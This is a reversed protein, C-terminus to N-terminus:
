FDIEYLVFFVALLHRACPLWALLEDKGNNVQLISSKGERQTMKLTDKEDTIQSVGSGEWTILSSAAPATKCVSRCTNPVKSRPPAARAQPLGGHQVTRPGLELGGLTVRAWPEGARFRVKGMLFVPSNM